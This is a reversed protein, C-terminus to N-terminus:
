KKGMKYYFGLATNLHLPPTINGSRLFCLSKQMKERIYSFDKM